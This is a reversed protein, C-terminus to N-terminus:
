LANAGSVIETIEQTISSQRAKNYELTLSDKLDDANRTANDMAFRRAAQESTKSSLYLHYMDNRLYLDLVSNFIDNPNPEMIVEKNEKKSEHAFPLITEGISRYSISNIFMNYIVKVEGVEEDMFKNKALSFIKSLDHYVLDDGPTLENVIRYGDKKLENYCSSGILYIYDEKSVNDVIYKVISTNYSGCLGVDSTFVIYYNLKSANEKCYVSDFEYTSNFVCLAASKLAENYLRNKTVYNSMRNLKVTSVSKMASTIKKTSDISKIRTKISTISSSM